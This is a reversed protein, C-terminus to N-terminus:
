NFLALGTTQWLGNRVQANRAAKSSFVRAVIDPHDQPNQGPLLSNKIEPWNPNTTTTIFLDPHRIYPMAHHKHM